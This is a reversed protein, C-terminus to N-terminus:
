SAPKTIEAFFHKKSQAHGMPVGNKCLNPWFITIRLPQPLNKLQFGTLFDFHTHDQPLIQVLNPGIYHFLLSVTM